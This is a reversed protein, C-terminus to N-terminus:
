FLMFNEQQKQLKARKQEHITIIGPMIPTEMLILAPDGSLKKHAERLIYMHSQAGTLAGWGSAISQALFILGAALFTFYFYKKIKPNTIKM